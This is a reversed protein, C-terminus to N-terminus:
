RPIHSFGVVYELNIGRIALNMPGVHPGDPASLVWTPGMIAAHVGSDPVIEPLWLFVFSLTLLNGPGRISVSTLPYTIVDTIEYPIYINM